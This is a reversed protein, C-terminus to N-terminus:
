DNASGQATPAEPRKAGTPPTQDFLTAAPTIRESARELLVVAGALLLVVGAIQPTKLAGGFLAGRGIPDRWFETVFMVTGAAMLFVGALDGNQRRRPLLFALGVAIAFYSLAVYAQVPHVPIGLPAGSWFEAFPDSYTIAWPVHTGTGYGAGSLLAGLQEFGLGLALPIALADAAMRLPLRQWTAYLVAVALALLTGIAALLPHHIMALGLMWVPHHRLVSWNAAVLLLRSGVLATFLVLICLNWIKNPDIRLRRATYLAVMLGVLVGFAAVVGYSPILFSGIHFLVPHV